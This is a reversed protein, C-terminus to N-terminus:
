CWRWVLGGQSCVSSAVPQIPWVKYWSIHSIRHISLWSNINSENLNAKKSRFHEVDKLMAPLRCRQVKWCAQRWQRCTELSSRLKSKVELWGFTSKANGCCWIVWRYMFLWVRTHTYMTHLSCIEPEWGLKTWLTDIILIYIYGLLAFVIKVIANWGFVMIKITRELWAWERESKKEIHSFLQQARMKFKKTKIATVKISFCM